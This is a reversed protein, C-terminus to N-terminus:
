KWLLHTPLSAKQFQYQILLFQLLRTLQYRHQIFHNSVSFQKAQHKASDVIPLQYTHKYKAQNLQQRTDSVPPSAHIETSLKASQWRYVWADNLGSITMSSALMCAFAFLMMTTQLKLSVQQLLRIRLM